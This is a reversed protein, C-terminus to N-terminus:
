GAARLLVQRMPLSENVARVFAAERAERSAHGKKPVIITGQPVVSRFYEVDFHPAFILRVDPNRVSVGFLAEIGAMRGDIESAVIVLVVEATILGLADEGSKVSVIEMDSPILWGLCQCWMPDADVILVQYNM